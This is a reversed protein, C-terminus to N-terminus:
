TRVHRAMGARLGLETAKGIVNEFCDNGSNHLRRVGDLRGLWLQVDPSEFLAAEYPALEEDRIDLLDAAVRYRVVPGAHEMLWAVLATDQQSDNPM